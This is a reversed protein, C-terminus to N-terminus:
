AGQHDSAGNDGRAQRGARAQDIQEEVRRLARKLERMEDRTALHLRHALRELQGDVVGEIKGRTMLIKMLVKMIREDQLLRMVTPSQILATGASLLTKKISDLM